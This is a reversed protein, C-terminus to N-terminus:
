KGASPVRALRFGLGRYRVHPEFWFRYSARCQAAVYFWAGGRVVRYSTRLQVLDDCWQWVNGHMDFLGLDNPKLSGVPQTKGDLNGSYWGYRVLLEAPEGFGFNSQSRARCAYEWEKESPLRYGDLELHNKKLGTVMGKEDEDYCKQLGEKNSLWNCYAAADLWSVEIAPCEEKQAYNKDFDYTEGREKRFRRFQEVTVDTAAIEFSHEIEVDRAREGEGMRFKDGPPIVVMTQGQTTIYWRANELPNPLPDEPRERARSALTKLHKEISALRQNKEKKLQDDIQKIKDEAGWQRLLWGAAAHLGADDHDRYLGVLEDLFGPQSSYQGLSLLIARQISVDKEDGLRATLTGPDVGAAALREILFSRRTPDPSHKLLLWAADGHGIALLVAGINAQQKALSIRAVEQDEAGPQRALRAELRDYADPADPALTGYIGAALGLEALTRKEAEIYDALPGVLHAAAPKLLETWKPIEFQKQALLSSVVDPGYKKWRTDEPLSKALACAARLRQDAQAGPDELLARWEEDRGLKQDLLAQRIVQVEDPDGKLLRGYLYDAQEPDAPLLALSAHLRQRDNEADRYADRLLPDLWRRYPTMKEVIDPVGATPLSLVNDRLHQAQVRGFIEFGALIALVLCLVVAVGRVVHSRTAKRMMRRQPPTWNKKRTWWRIQSWQWLSPLQRNEPRAKWVGARDALLLEARGRRTEKQKRTLWDRLSPVLYDHTLQYFRAGEDARPALLPEAQGKSASRASEEIGKSASRALEEVGEPDTPTILRIEADLIRLLDEFDRPRSAYGSAELLEAHSRMNGKIDSGSEPLLAKLVGRAAKQHYRHEPPSTSASFTEELFNVGVGETGGVEKLSAPTWSRGKLMEAFLALRVCVVKNDLALGDVAQKLFEGQESTLEGAIEPVKGFARGFAALVKRAHDRDFLDALASNQGEVLRVELQRLFRSVALWFDDRVMVICQVRSGDCQRLAQILQTNDDAKSAHLWQEFQDLVILIKKGAPLGQWRRLAALTEKLSLKDPLAPCRKRLGNLLRAETEAGTAEVYVAIVNESLRPLLGAKVLSSKGCGSPGYILGVSFTQDLDTEEIRTKWFRISDPLGDRDRPGPLLELFFDADHADFSRLGKAVIRPAIPMTPFFPDPGKQAFCGEHREPLLTGVGKERGLFHGLDAAMDRATMYRDSARKSLAKLCIRELEKPITDDIQRPPRAEDAVIQQLIQATDGRFPRRGTLLEYFVVGLSFIDSRGDVRHGEGNAQEPSMYAPTGCIGGSKGYDDEKLALGFDAVYPKGEADLLINAPKVDRHVLGRKHAYHLAEAVKAVLEVAEPWAPRAGAIKRALDSGEIFKSVVFCLGNDTHDADYVPVIHAHDLSALMRGEALYAEVDEPKSIRSRLPVKIAVDRRLVEDFGRYVAGFGGSGLKATIRYHGVRSPMEPEAPRPEATSPAPDPVVTPTEAIWRDLQQECPPFRRRYEERALNPERQCRNAFEVKILEFVAEPSAALEAYRQLYDEVRAAEGARLRWGLDVEALELLLCARRSPLERLHDDINPRQGDHWAQSFADVIGHLTSDSLESSPQPSASM